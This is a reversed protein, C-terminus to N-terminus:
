IKEDLSLKNFSNSNARKCISTAHLANNRFTKRMAANHRKVGEAREEDSMHVQGEASDSCQHTLHSNHESGDSNGAALLTEVTLINILPQELIVQSLVAKFSSSTSATGKGTPSVANSVSPLNQSGSGSSSGGGTNKLISKM